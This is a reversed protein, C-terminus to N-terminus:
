RPSARQGLPATGRRRQIPVARPSAHQSLPAADPRRQIPVAHRGARQSLPLRVLCPRTRDPRARPWPSLPAATGCDRTLFTPPSAPRSLLAAARETLTLLPGRCACPSFSGAPCQRLLSEHGPPASRCEGPCRDRDALQRACLHLSQATRPGARQRSLMGHAPPMAPDPAPILAPYLAPDPAPDPDPDPDLAQHQPM